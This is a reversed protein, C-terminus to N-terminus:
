LIPRGSILVSMKRTSILFQAKYDELDFLTENRSFAATITEYSTHTYYPIDQISFQGNM